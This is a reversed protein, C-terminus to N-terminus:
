CPTRAAWRAASPPPSASPGTAAITVPGDTGDMEQNGSVTVDYSAGSSVLLKGALEVEVTSDDKVNTKSGTLEALRLTL